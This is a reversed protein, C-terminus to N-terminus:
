APCAPVSSHTQCAFILSLPTTRHEKVWAMAEDTSAFPGCQFIDGHQNYVISVPGDQKLLALMEEYQADTFNKDAQYDDYINGAEKFPELIALALKIAEAKTMPQKAM